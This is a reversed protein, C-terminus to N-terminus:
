PLMWETSWPNSTTLKMSWTDNNKATKQLARHDANTRKQHRSGGSISDNQTISPGLSNIHTFNRHGIWAMNGSWVHVFGLVGVTKFSFL